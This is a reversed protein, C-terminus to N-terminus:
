PVGSRGCLSVLTLSYVIQLLTVQEIGYKRSLSPQGKKKKNTTTEFDSSTKSCWLIQHCQAFPTLPTDASASGLHSVIIGFDGM